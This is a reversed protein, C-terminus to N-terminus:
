QTTAIMGSAPRNRWRPGGELAVTAGEDPKRGIEIYLPNCYSRGTQRIKQPLGLYPSGSAWRTNTSVHLGKRDPDDDHRDLLQGGPFCPPQRKLAL